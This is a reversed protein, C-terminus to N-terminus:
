RVVHILPGEPTDEVLYSLRWRTHTIPRGRYTMAERNWETPQAPLADKLQRFDEDTLAIAVPERLSCAWEFEQLNM